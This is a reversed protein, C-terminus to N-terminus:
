FVFPLLAAVQRSYLDYAQGFQERMWKEELSLKLWLAIFVLVVAVLGGWEGRAIACGFFAILLGTYIPHRVIAYPGTRILEHGQKVTVERSWNSGLHRRAWVSFILGAATVAAGTWFTWEAFPLFRCNLIPIPGHHMWLLSIAAIMLILRVLRSGRPESRTIPKLDKAMATWYLVFAIWMAPFLYAYFLTM